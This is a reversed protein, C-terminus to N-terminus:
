LYIEGKPTHVDVYVRSNIAIQILPKDPSIPDANTDVTM